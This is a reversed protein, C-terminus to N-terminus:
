GVYITLTTDGQRGASCNSSDVPYCCADNTMVLSTDYASRPFGNIEAESRLSLPINIVPLQYRLLILLVRAHMRVAGHFEVHPCILGPYLLSPISSSKPLTDSHLTLTNSPLPIYRSNRLHVHHLQAVSWCTFCDLTLHFVNYFNNHFLM